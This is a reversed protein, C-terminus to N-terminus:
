HTRGAPTKLSRGSRPPRLCRARAMKIPPPRPDLCNRRHHELSPTTRPAAASPEFETVPGSKGYRSPPASLSFRVRRKPLCHPAGGKLVLRSGQTM